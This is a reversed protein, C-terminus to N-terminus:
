AYQSIVWLARGGGHGEGCSVRAGWLGEMIMLGGWGGGHGEAGGM